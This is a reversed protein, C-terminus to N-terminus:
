AIKTDAEEEGDSISGIGGHETPFREPISRPTDVKRPARSMASRGKARGKATKKKAKSGSKAAKRKKAM